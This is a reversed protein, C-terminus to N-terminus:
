VSVCVYQCMYQCVCQCVCVYVRQKVSLERLGCAVGSDRIKHPMEFAAQAPAFRKSECKIQIYTNTHAHMHIQIHTQVLTHM